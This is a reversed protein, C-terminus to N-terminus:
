QFLIPLRLALAAEVLWALREVLIEEEVDRFSALAPDAAMEARLVALEERLRQCDTVTWEGECDSHLLLSPFREGPTGSELQAAIHQRFRNFDAYSGVEVGAAEQSGAFICLYLSV